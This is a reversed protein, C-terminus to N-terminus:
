AGIRHGYDAPHVSVMEAAAWFVLLAVLTELRISRALRAQAEADGGALAPTLKLRHWAALGFLLAFAMLKAILSGGYWTTVLLDWRGVLYWGLLLGTAVVVAVIWLAARAWAAILAAGPQGQRAARALPPLSGVWFAVALVHLAVLAALVQRPRYLTSHGMAAYSGAVMLAGMAGLAPAVQWGSASMIVLVLGACRLWFADGIRSTMLAGWTASDFATAGSTLVLAQILLVLVSLAIGAAAAGITWRRWHIRGEDDLRHGFCAGFLALGAAGLAAAHYAARLLVMVADLASPDPRLYEIIM